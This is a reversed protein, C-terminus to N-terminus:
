YIKQCFTTAVKTEEFKQQNELHQKEKLSLSNNVTKVEANKSCHSFLLVIGLLKLHNKIKM